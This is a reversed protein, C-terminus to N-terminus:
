KSIWGDMWESIREIVQESLWEYGAHLQVCNVALLLKKNISFYSNEWVINCWHDDFVM